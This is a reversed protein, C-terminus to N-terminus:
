QQPEATFDENALDDFLTIIRSNPNFTFRKAGVTLIYSQGAPIQGFRYYGFSSSLAYFAAGTQANVLTLRVNRIGRGDITRIRGTISASAATPVFSGFAWFGGRLNFAGGTSQTGALPQGVTGDVIYTGGTSTSGGGGAIVNHSLDFTGGTQAQVFNQSAVVSLFVFIVYVINTKM